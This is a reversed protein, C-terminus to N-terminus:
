RADFVVNLYRRDELRLIEFNGNDKEEFEAM